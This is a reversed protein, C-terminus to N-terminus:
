QPVIQRSYEYTGPEIATNFTMRVNMMEESLEGLYTYPYDSVLKGSVPQYDFAYKTYYCKGDVIACYPDEGSACDSGSPGSASQGYCGEGNYYPDWGDDGEGYSEARAPSGEPRWYRAGYFTFETDLGVMDNDGVHRITEKDKVDIDVGARNKIYGTFTVTQGGYANFSISDDGDWTIGDVESVSTSSHEDEVIKLEFPSDVNVTAQTTNSLYGVLAATGLTAMALSVLVFVPVSRGFVKVTKKLLKM